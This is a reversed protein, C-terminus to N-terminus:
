HGENKWGGGGEGELKGGRDTGSKELICKLGLDGKRDNKELDEV